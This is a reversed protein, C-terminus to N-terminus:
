RRARGIVTWFSAVVEAEDCRKSACWLGGVFRAMVVLLEATKRGGKSAQGHFEGAPTSLVQSPLM